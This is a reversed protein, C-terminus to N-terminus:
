NDLWKRIDSRSGKLADTLAKYVWWPYQTGDTGPLAELPGEQGEAGGVDSACM